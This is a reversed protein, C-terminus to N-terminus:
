IGILKTIHDLLSLEHEKEPLSALLVRRVEVPDTDALPIVLRQYYGKKMDVRVEKLNPQYDVWFSKMDAYHHRQDDVSIGTAHIRIESQRHPRTANLNIVIASLVLITTFLFDHQLWAILGAAVILLITFVLIQKPQHPPSLHTSWVVDAGEESAPVAVIEDETTEVPIEEKPKIPEPVVLPANKKRLDITQTM